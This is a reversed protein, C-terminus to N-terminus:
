KKKGGLGSYKFIESMANLFHTQEEARIDAAHKEEDFINLRIEPPPALLKQLANGSHVPPHCAGMQCLYVTPQGQIAMKGEALPLSKKTEENKNWVLIKNPRYDQYVTALMEQFAPTERSGAFVIETPSSLLFDLAALCGTFAPPSQEMLPKLARLASESKELYEKKGTFRGLKLLAMIAKSGASPIAEDAPNKLRSVLKEHSLGTMFWGGEKEDWFEEIMRAALLHARDIWETELSAEYLSVLGELLYAYDELCGNFRSQGQYYIRRLGSDSWLHEWIFRGCTEAAQLYKKERLVAYGAALATIMLGNWATIAKEDRTPKPRKERAEWLTKKGKQLIHQVEFIPVKEERSIVEMSDEIHLVNLKGFNGSPTVGYARAFIRAHRPGLLNLVEKLRWGYYSGEGEGTVADQSAYFLGEPSRLERLVYDMTERAVTEYVEQDTAQFIDLYLQALLANDYLMKEFHPVRWMRDTSYRHFGGALQDYIGGRAMQTLSKDIMELVEQSGTRAWYRLLLTYVMSEPFKMGSGFGGCESDYREALMEVAKDILQLEPTGSSLGAKERRALNELIREARSQIEGRQNHYLGHVQELVQSFGPRNYKPSPPFYTGGFFPKQDPTLFINLPWGGHGTLEVLAKIYIADLDPREERDAKINVFRENMVAATDENEFSEQAMVHCWHCASYGISLLIPKNETRAKDLAEPGWPYWDVPNHAHQRLYPSTEHILRNTHRHNEM